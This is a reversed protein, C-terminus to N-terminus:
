TGLPCFTCLSCFDLPLFQPPTFTTCKYLNLAAGYFASWRPSNAHLLIAPCVHNISVNSKFNTHHQIQPFGETQQATTAWRERITTERSGECWWGPRGCSTLHNAQGEVHQVVVVQEVLPPRPPTSRLLVLKCSSQPSAPRQHGVLVSGPPNQCLMAETSVTYNKKLQSNTFDLIQM